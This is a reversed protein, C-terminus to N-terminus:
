SQYEGLKVEELAELHDQLVEVEEHIEASLHGYDAVYDTSQSTLLQSYITGLSALTNELRIEARKMTAELHQLTALQNKRNSLTKELEAQITPNSEAALQAELKEIAQPVQKLDLSIVANQQFGDIRRAMADIAAMWETIQKGLDQLRAQNHTTANAEIYTEIQEKYLHAQNLYSQMASAPMDQAEQEAQETQASTQATKKAETEDVKAENSTAEDEDAFMVKIFDEFMSVGVFFLPILLWPFFKGTTFSLFITLGIFILIATFEGSKDRILKRWQPSLNNM